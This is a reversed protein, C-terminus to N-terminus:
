LFGFKDNLEFGVLVKFFTVAKGDWKLLSKQNPRPSYQRPTLQQDLFKRFSYTLLTANIVDCSVNRSSTFRPTKSRFSSTIVNTSSKPMEYIGPAPGEKPQFLPLRNSRSKFSGGNIIRQSDINLYFVSRSKSLGRDRSTKSRFGYTQPLSTGHDVFDRYKYAGPLLLRGSPIVDCIDPRAVALFSYSVFKDDL